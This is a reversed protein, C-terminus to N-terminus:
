LLTEREDWLDELRPAVEAFPQSAVSFRRDLAQRLPLFLDPREWGNFTAFWTPMPTFLGLDRSQRLLQTVLNTSLLKGKNNGGLDIGQCAARPWVYVGARTDFAVEIRAGVHLAALVEPTAPVRTRLVELHNAPVAQGTLERSLDWCREFGLADAPTPQASHHKGVALVEAERGPPWAVAFVAHGVGPPQVPGQRPLWPDPWVPSVEFTLGSATCSGVSERVSGLDRVKRSSQPSYSASTYAVPYPSNWVKATTEMNEWVVATDQPGLGSKHSIQLGDVEYDAGPAGRVTRKFEQVGGFQNAWFSLADTFVDELLAAATLQHYALRFQRQSAVIPYLFDARGLMSSFLDSLAVERSDVRDM